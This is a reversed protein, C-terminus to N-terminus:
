NGYYEHNYTQQYMSPSINLIEQLANDFEDPQPCAFRGQSFDNLAESVDVSLRNCDPVIVVLEITINNQWALNNIADRNLSYITDCGTELGVTILVIGQIGRRNRLHNITDVVAQQISGVGGPPTLGTQDSLAINDLYRRIMPLNTSKEDPSVLQITDECGRVGSLEGNGGFISLGVFDVERTLTELRLNSFPTVQTSFLGRTQETADVIFYWTPQEGLVTFLFFAFWIIILSLFYAAIMKTYRRVTSTTRFILITIILLGLIQIGAIINIYQDDLTPFYNRTIIAIVGPILFNLGLFVIQEIASSSAGTSLQSNSESQTGISTQNFTALLKAIGTSTIGRTFKVTEFGKFAAPLPINEFEVIIVPKKLKKAETLQWLGLKSNESTSTLLYLFIDCTALTSLLNQLNNPEPLLQLEQLVEHGADHLVNILRKAQNTNLSDHFLLIRM